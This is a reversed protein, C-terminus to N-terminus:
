RNRGVRNILVKISGATSSLMAAIEADTLGLGHLILARQQMTSPRSPAMRLAILAFSRAITTLPGQLATLDV